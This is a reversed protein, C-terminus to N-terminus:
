AQNTDTYTDADLTPQQVVQPTGQEQIKTIIRVVDEYPQKGLVGLIANVEQVTLELKIM